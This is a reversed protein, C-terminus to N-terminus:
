AEGLDKSLINGNNLIATASLNVGLKMRGFFVSVWKRM